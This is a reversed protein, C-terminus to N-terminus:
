NRYRKKDPREPKKKRPKAVIIDKIETLVLGEPKTLKGNSLKNIDNFILDDTVSDRNWQLYTKKMHNALITYLLDKEPGEEFGTAAVVLEELTRGYHKFRIKKNPYPLKKPKEFIKERVPIPYPSEIDLDFDSMIFIHDWLMHKFDPIDRLHPNLNGMIEIVAKALKNRKEQDQEAKIQDVMQHIHRGYEPLILKKRATNYDM